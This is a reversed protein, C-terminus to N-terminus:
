MGELKGTKFPLSGNQSSLDRGGTEKQFRENQSIRVKIDSTELNKLNIM